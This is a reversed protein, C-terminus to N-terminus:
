STQIKKALLLSVTTGGPGSDLRVTAGLTQARAYLNKLGIGGMTRARAVDFGQGNDAVTLQQGAPTQYLSVQGETAKAHRVMNTILENAIRYLQRTQTASLDPPHGDHNFSLRVTGGQCCQQVLEALATPLGKQTLDPPLSNRLIQDLNADTKGILNTVETLLSSPALASLITRTDTLRRVVDTLLLSGVQQRESELLDIITENTRQQTQVLGLQLQRKEDVSKRYRYALLYSFIVLDIFFIVTLILYADIFFIGDSRYRMLNQAYIFLQCAIQVGFGAAYLRKVTDPSRLGVVIVFPFVLFAGNAMWTHIQTVLRYTRTYTETLGAAQSIVLGIFLGWFAYKVAQTTRFVPKSESRLQLFHQQFQLMAPIYLWLAMIVADPHNIAPLRPWLYQFGLGTDAFQRLALALVYLGYWGYVPDRTAGYFLFALLVVLGVVGAFLGWLFYERQEKDEFNGTQWLTLETALNEYRKDLRLYYDVSRATGRRSGVQWGADLNLLYVFTKTPSPRQAFPYRSGTEGLSTTVGNAVRFLELRDITHNRIELSLEATRRESPGANRREPLSDAVLRFRFWHVSETYGINVRRKRVPKYANARIADQVTASGGADEWHFIPVPQEVMTNVSALHYAALGLMATVVAGFLLILDRIM